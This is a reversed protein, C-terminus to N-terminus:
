SFATRPNRLRSVIVSCSPRSQSEKADPARRCVPHIALAIASEMRVSAREMRNTASCDQDQRGSGRPSRRLFGIFCQKDILKLAFSLVLGLSGIALLATDFGNFAEGKTRLSRVLLGRAVPVTTQRRSDPEM